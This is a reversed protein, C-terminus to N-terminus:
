TTATRLSMLAKDALRQLLKDRDLEADCRRVLTSIYGASRLRLSAAIERLRLLGENWGIWAALMRAAGGRTNRLTDPDIDCARAVSRTVKVMTLRPILRQARSHEDSRPKSEVLARMREIWSASGLYMQGVLSDWLSDTTGLKEAVYDRYIARAATPDRDLEFLWEADLWDPIPELGALARYSSWRYEEPREVMHARVPNLITYRLVENLYDQKEILIGKFRGQFLHGVRKHKRNFYQAYATGLWHMGLSLTCVPTVLVLHYHNGMLVWFRLSWRFRKVATGLLALFLKRDADSRFITRRENGRATIHWAAGEHELRLPRAM